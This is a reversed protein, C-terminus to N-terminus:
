HGVGAGSATFHAFAPEFRAAGVGGIKGVGGGDGREVGGVGEGDEGGVAFGGVFKELRQTLLQRNTASLLYCIPFYCIASLFSAALLYAFPTVLNREIM